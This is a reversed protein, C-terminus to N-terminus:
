RTFNCSFTQTYAGEEGSEDVSLDIVTVHEDEIVFAIDDSYEGLMANETLPHLRDDERFERWNAKAMHHFLNSRNIEWAKM